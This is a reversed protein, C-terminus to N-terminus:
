RRAGAPTRLEIPELVLDMPQELVIGRHGPLPDPLQDRRQPEITALRDDIVVQALDARHKPRRPRKLARDM